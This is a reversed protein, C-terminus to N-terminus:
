LSLQFSADESCTYRKKKNGTKGLLVPTVSIKDYDSKSITIPTDTDSPYTSGANLNIIYKDVQSEQMASDIKEVNVEYVPISGQNVITLENGSVALKLNVEGCFSSAPKPVGNIEKEVVEGILSRIWFFVILALIIGISILITTTIVPSLAKKDKKMIKNMNLNLYKKLHLWRSRTKNYIIRM